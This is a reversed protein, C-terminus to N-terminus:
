KIGIHLKKISNKSFSVTGSKSYDKKAQNEGQKPKKAHKMQGYVENTKGSINESITLLNEILLIM